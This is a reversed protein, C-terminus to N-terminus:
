LTIENNLYKVILKEITESMKYNGCKKRFRMFTHKELRVNFTFAEPKKPRGRTM